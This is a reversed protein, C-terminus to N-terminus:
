ELTQEIVGGGLCDDGQYFVVSQGPTVARQRQDFHVRCRGDGLELVACRQLPQRHRIRSLCRLPMAPPRGSVWHMQSADLGRKLLRPHDHGQAVLLRNQALDKDVVFWPEDGAGARGGIGLGKRQGLTYYM